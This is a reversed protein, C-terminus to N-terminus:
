VSVRRRFHASTHDRLRNRQAIIKPFLMATAKEFERDGRSYSNAVSLQTYKTDPDHLLYRCQDLFGWEDMTVNRAVQMMWAESPHSTIGAQPEDFGRVGCFGQSVPWRGSLREAM